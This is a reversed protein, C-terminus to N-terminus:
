SSRDRVRSRAVALLDKYNPELPATLSSELKSELDFLVRREADDEFAVDDKQNFRALWEFLVLAQDATLELVLKKEQVM